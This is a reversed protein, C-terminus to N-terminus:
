ATPEATVGAHGSIVDKRGFGAALEPLLREHGSFVELPTGDARIGLEFTVRDPAPGLCTPPEQPNRGLSPDPMRVAPEVIRGARQCHFSDRVAVPDGLFVAELWLRMHTHVFALSIERLVTDDGVCTLESAQEIHRRAEHWLPWSSQRLYLAVRQRGLVRDSHASTECDADAETDSRASTECEPDVETIGSADLQDPDALNDEACSSLLSETLV